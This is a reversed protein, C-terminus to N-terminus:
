GHGQSHSGDAKAGGALAGSPQRVGLRKANAAGSRIEALNQVAAARQRKEGTMWGLIIEPFSNRGDEDLKPAVLGGTELKSNPNRITSNTPRTAACGLRGAPRGSRLATPAAGKYIIDAFM